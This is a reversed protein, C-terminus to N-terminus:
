LVEGLGGCVGRLGDSVERLSAERLCGCVERTKCAFVYYKHKLEGSGDTSSLYM